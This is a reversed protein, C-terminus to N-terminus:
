GVTYPQRTAAAATADAADIEPGSSTGAGVNPTSISRVTGGEVVSVYFSSVTHGGPDGPAHDHDYDFGRAPLQAAALQADLQGVLNSRTTRTIAVAALGLVMAVVAMGALVRARLSM